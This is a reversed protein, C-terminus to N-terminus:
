EIYASQGGVSFAFDFQRTEKDSVLASWAVKAWLPLYGAPINITSAFQDEGWAEAEENITSTWGWGVGMYQTATPEGDLAGYRQAMCMYNGPQIAAPSVDFPPLKKRVNRVAAREHLSLAPEPVHFEVMMRTGYHRLEVKQIKEVWVYIGSISKPTGSNG